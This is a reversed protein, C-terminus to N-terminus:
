SMIYARCFAYGTLCYLDGWMPFFMNKEWHCLILAAECKGAEWGASVFGPIGVLVGAILLGAMLRTLGTRRNNKKM